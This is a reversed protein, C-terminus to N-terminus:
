YFRSIPKIKRLLPQAPTGAAGAGPPARVLLVNERSREGTSAEPPADLESMPLAVAAEESVVDNYVRVHGGEPRVDNSIGVRLTPIPAGGAAAEIVHVREKATLFERILANRDMLM